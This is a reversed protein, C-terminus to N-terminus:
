RASGGKCAVRHDAMVKNLGGQTTARVTTRCRGCTFEALDWGPDPQEPQPQQTV